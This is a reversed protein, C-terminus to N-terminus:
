RDKTCIKEHQPIHQPPPPAMTSYSSVSAAVGPVSVSPYGITAMAYPNGGGSANNHVNGNGNTTANLGINTNTNTTGTDSNTCQYTNAAAIASGYGIYNNSSYDTVMGNYNPHPSTGTHTHIRVTLSSLFFSQMKRITVCKGCAETRYSDIYPSAVSDPTSERSYVAQGVATGNFPFGAGIALPRLPASFDVPETQPSKKSSFSQSHHTQNPYSPSTSSNPPLNSTPPPSCNANPSTGIRPSSPSSDSMRQVPFHASNYAHSATSAPTSMMPVPGTPSPNSKFASAMKVTLNIASFGPPPAAAFQDYHHYVPRPYLPTQSGDMGHESKLMAETAMQHQEQFYKQQSFDDISTQLYPYMAPRQTAILSNFDYRDFAIGNVANEYSRALEYSSTGNAYPHQLDCMQQSYSRTYSDEISVPLSADFASMYKNMSQSTVCASAMQGSSSITSQIANSNIPNESAFGSTHISNKPISAKESKVQIQSKNQPSKVAGNLNPFKVNENIAENSGNYQSAGVNLMKVEGDVSYCNRNTEEASALQRYESSQYNLVLVCTLISFQM